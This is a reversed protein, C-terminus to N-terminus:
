FRFNFISIPNVRSFYITLNCLSPRIVFRVKHQSISPTSRYQWDILRNITLTECLVLELYIKPFRASGAQKDNCHVHLLTREPIKLVHDHYLWFGIGVNMLFSPVSRTSQQYVSRSPQYEALAIASRSIRTNAIDFNRM